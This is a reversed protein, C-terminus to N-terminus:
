IKDGSYSRLNVLGSFPKNRNFVDFSNNRRLLTIKFLMKNMITLFSFGLPMQYLELKNKM